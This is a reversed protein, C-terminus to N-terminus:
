KNVEDQSTFQTQAKIVMNTIVEKLQWGPWKDELQCRLVKWAELPMSLTLSMEVKDPDVIKILAKM